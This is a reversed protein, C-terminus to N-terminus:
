AYYYVYLQIYSWRDGEKIAAIGNSSFPKCADFQHKLMLTGDSSIYGWKGNECIAALGCSFSGAQEYQFEMAMTGDGNVFGWKGNKCVAAPETSAFPEAEDFEESGIRKGSADMMYYGGNEKVFIVNNNICTNHEDRVVDSFIFDTIQKGNPDILAWKKDKRVAAVGNKFNTAEDYDQSDAVHLEQTMYGYKGNKGYLAMGNSLVSLADVAQDPAAVKYGATNIMFWEGDKCVATSTGLLPAADEYFPAVLFTGNSKLYGYLGDAKVRANSGLFSDAEELESKLYKLRFATEMYQDRVQETAIGKARAEQACNLLKSVSDEQYYYNCLAEYAQPSQPFLTVYDKVAQPYFEPLKECQALFERYIDENGGKIQMASRYNMIAAYPIDREANDRASALSTVYQKETNAADSLSTFLASVGVVVLLLIVALRILKEKM